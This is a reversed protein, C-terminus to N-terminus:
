QLFVISLCEYLDPAGAMLKLVKGTRTVVSFLFVQTQVSEESFSLSAEQNPIEMISEFGVHCFLHSVACSLQVFLFSPTRVDTSADSVVVDAEFPKNNADRM